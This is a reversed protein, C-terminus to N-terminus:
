QELMFAYETDMLAEYVEDYNVVLDKIAEPNQKRMQSTLNKQPVGLFHQIENLTQEPTQTMSSYTVEMIKHDKFIKQTDSIYTNTTEFDNLMKEIDVKVKRDEVGITKKSETRWKDTKLAILRSIHVRLQNKRQLHIIKIAKDQQLMDWVSRDKSDSPHYYFLKFGRVKTSKNPFIESYISTTERGDLAYFKEGFVIMDGHSNLLSRLLNSGTRSRAVIVFKVYDEKGFLRDYERLGITALKNFARKM